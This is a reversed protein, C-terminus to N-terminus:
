SAQFAAPLGPQPQSSTSGAKLAISSLAPRRWHMARRRRDAAHSPNRLGRDMRQGPAIQLRRLLGPQREIRVEVACLLFADADVLYWWPPRRMDAARAKRRGAIFRPSHARRSSHAPSSFGTRPCARWRRRIHAFRADLVRDAGARSTIRDPPEILEGCSSCSDPSRDLRADRPSPMSMTCALSFTPRLRSSWM